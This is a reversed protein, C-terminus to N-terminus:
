REVAHFHFEIGDSERQNQLKDIKIESFLYAAQWHILFETLEAATKASGSFDVINRERAIETFCVEYHHRKMVEIFLNKTRQQGREVQPTAHDNQVVPQLKKLEFVQTQVRDIMESMTYHAAIVMALTMGIAIFIIQKTIKEQQLRLHQRWPLLNIMM